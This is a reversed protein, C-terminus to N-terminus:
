RNDREDTLRDLWGPHKYDTPDFALDDDCM